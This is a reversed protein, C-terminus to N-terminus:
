IVIIILAMIILVSVIGIGGDKQKECKKEYVISAKGEM